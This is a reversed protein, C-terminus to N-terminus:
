SESIEVSSNRRLVDETFVNSDLKVVGINDYCWKEIQLSNYVAYNKINYSQKDIYLIGRTFGYQENEEGEEGEESPKLSYTLYMEIHKNKIDMNKKVVFFTDTKCYLKSNCKVLNESKLGHGFGLFIPMIEEPDYSFILWHDCSTYADTM